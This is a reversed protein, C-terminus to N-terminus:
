ATAEKGFMAAMHLFSFAPAMHGKVNWQFHSCFYGRLCVQQGRQAQVAPLAHTEKERSTLKDCSPLDCPPIPSGSGSVCRRAITSLRLRARRIHVPPSRLCIGTRILVICHVIGADFRRASQLRRAAFVLAM